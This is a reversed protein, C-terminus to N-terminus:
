GNAIPAPVAPPLWKSLLSSYYDVTVRPGDVTYIYFGVTHLEQAVQAQRKHGFAPVDYGDDNSPIGPTYFKSSDSACLINQM